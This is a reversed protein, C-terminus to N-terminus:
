KPMKLKGTFFLLALIGIAVVSMSAKMPEVNSVTQKVTEIINEIPNEKIRKQEQLDQILKPLNDIWIQSLHKSNASKMRAKHSIESNIKDRCLQIASDFGLTPVKALVISAFAELDRFGRATVSNRDEPGIGFISGISDSINNINSFGSQFNFKKVQSVAVLPLAM